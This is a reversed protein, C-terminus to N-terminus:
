RVLRWATLTGPEWNPVYLREGVLLFDNLYTKAERSDSVIAAAGDKKVHFLRGPWEGVLYDGGGLSAVGDGQGVGVALLELKRGTWDMAVVLGEMTTIVLRDAEPLLGNISRLRPDAAWVELKGDKLAYIRAGGSDSTLVEGGPAIAVDNLFRAGPAEHRALVEGSVADIEILRTIDAAYLRGDKLALGKPADLGRVWEREIVRGDTSVRSIFGNGDKADGEGAVNSVYLVGAPGEVVSEPNALGPLTWLPELRPQAAAPVAAALAGALLLLLRM